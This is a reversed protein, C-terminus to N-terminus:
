TDNGIALEPVSGLNAERRVESQACQGLVQAAIM